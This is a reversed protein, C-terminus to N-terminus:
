SQGNWVKWEGTFKYVSRTKTSYGNIVTKIFGHNEIAKVDNYFQMHNGRNYLGYKEALSLNFYFLEDGQLREEDPFDKGPKRKGYYQAKMYMYLLRQNKTLDQFAASNLMSEYINASTDNTIGTSEFFRPMYRKRRQGMNEQREAQGNGCSLGIVQWVLSKNQKEYDKVM